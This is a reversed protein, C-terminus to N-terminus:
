VRSCTIADNLNATYFDNVATESVTSKVIVNIRFSINVGTCKSNVAERSLKERILRYKAVDYLLENLKNITSFDYNM